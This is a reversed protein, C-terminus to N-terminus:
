KNLNLRYRSAFHNQIPHRSGAPNAGKKRKHSTTTYARGVRHRQQLLSPSSPYRMVGNIHAIPTSTRMQRPQEAKGAQRGSAERRLRMDNGRCQDESVTCTLTQPPIAFPIIPKLAFSSGENHFRVRQKPRGQSSILLHKCDVGRAFCETLAAQHWHAVLGSRLHTREEM